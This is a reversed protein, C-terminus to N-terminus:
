ATKPTLWKEVTSASFGVLDAIEEITEGKMWLKLAMVRAQELKGDELGEAYSEDRLEEMVKCMESVGKSTEKLYRTREALLAFNMDSANTCNFDHMLRGIDSDDRYEGNVYLIHAGDDFPQSLTMNMNQIIYVPKGAKYYDKETIFIVYTDPLERYDQKEDLNEVDMVSSHYRARHPDAGNDSRQVELDYKKGTSDTAYADLCISRAGTVRKLDAQTECKTLTLDPKGTIIRLVLQALPLNEKFLGRMFTDDIPRFSQLRRLDEQHRQEQKQKDSRNM